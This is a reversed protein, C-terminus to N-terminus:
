ETPQGTVGSFKCASTGAAQAAATENVQPSSEDSSVRVLEVRRNRARGVDTDNTQRPRKEGYGDTTLQAAPVDFRTVLAGRVAEARRKSLTLNSADNGIADTHGEIRFRWSPFAKLAQALQVLTEDSETRLTASAFAFYIGSLELAETTRLTRTLKDAALPYEIALIRGESRKIGARLMLPNDPDDVVHFDFRERVGDGQLDGQVHLAPLLVTRRNVLMEVPKRDVVTVTGTLQGAQGGFGAVAGISIYTLQATGKTRLEQFVDCSIGPVNGTMSERDTSHWELRVNRSHLQDQARVRRKLDIPILGEGSDAPAEGIRHMTYSKPNIETITRLTEYDGVPSNAVAVTTLGKVFPIRVPATDSAPAMAPVGLLVTVFILFRATM